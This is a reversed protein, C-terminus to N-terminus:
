RPATAIARGAAGPPGSSEGARAARLTAWVVKGTRTPLSGWAVATAGVTRLGRGDEDLRVGPRPRVPLIRRPPHAVQDAVSLHLCSGRLSIVVTMETGAHRVANTVLESMVLQSPYLLEPMNWALCADRVLRRASRPAEPAPQLTVSLRETLPLRGAIAVRAQRVKAYVPLFRRAGLRQLRDALPRDPPVCLAIQVPPQMAAANRQATVWALASGSAPDDLETLDVILAEPHEALCKHLAKAATSWLPRAWRGRLTMLAVAADIDTEVSVSWQSEAPRATRTFMGDRYRRLRGPLRM